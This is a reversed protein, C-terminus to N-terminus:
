ISVLERTVQAVSEDLARVITRIEVEKIIVPPCVVVNDTSARLIVGRELCAARVRAAVQQEAPFPERTARDRVLEIAGMLGASRVEGVIAHRTLTSLQAAFFPALKRVRAILKEGELM